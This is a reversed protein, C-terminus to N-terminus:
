LYFIEVTKAPTSQKHSIEVVVEMRKLIIKRRNELRDSETLNMEQLDEPTLSEWEKDLIDLADSLDNLDLLSMAALPIQENSM